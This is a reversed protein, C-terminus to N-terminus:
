RDIQNHLNWHVPVRDPLTSWLVALAVFPALLLLGELWILKSKM